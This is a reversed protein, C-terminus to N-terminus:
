RLERPARERYARVKTRNGCVAMDCWVGSRNRSRDYFAWTCDAARCAKARQWRGDAMARAVPVLLRALAADVGEGGAEVGVSGDAAFHVGLEGRRAVLELQRSARERETETETAHPAHARQGEAHEHHSGNNALMLTRLAERLEIAHGLEVDRAPTTSVSTLGRGALWADLERAGGLEDRGAEVDLTNVFDIVLDLEDPTSSASM